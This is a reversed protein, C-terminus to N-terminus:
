GYQLVIGCLRAGNIMAQCAVSYKDSRKLRSVLEDAAVIGRCIQEDQGFSGAAGVRGAYPLWIALPAVRFAM